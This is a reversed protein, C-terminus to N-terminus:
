TCRRSFRCDNSFDIKLDILTAQIKHSFRQSLHVVGGFSLWVNSVGTIYIISWRRGFSYSIFCILVGRLHLHLRLYVCGNSTCSNLKSAFYNWVTWWSHRPHPLQPMWWWIVWLWTFVSFEVSNHFWVDDDRSSLDTWVCLRLLLSSPTVHEGFPDLESEVDVSCLCFLYHEVLLCFSVLCFRLFLHHRFAILIYNSQLTEFEFIELFCFNNVNKSSWNWANWYGSV